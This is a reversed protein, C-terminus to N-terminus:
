MSSCIKDTNLTGAPAPCNTACHPDSDEEDRLCGSRTHAQLRQKSRLGVRPLPHVNPPAVTLQGQGGKAAERSCWHIEEGM